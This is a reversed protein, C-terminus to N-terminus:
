NLRQMKIVVDKNKHGNAMNTKITISQRKSEVVDYIGSYEICQEAAKVDAIGHVHDTQNAIELKQGKNNFQWVFSARGDENLIWSGECTEKYIDCDKFLLVPKTTVETGNITLSTLEWKYGGMRNSYKKTKNCSAITVLSLIIIVSKKVLTKMRM